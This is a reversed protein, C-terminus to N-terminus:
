PLRNIWYNPRRRGHAVALVLVDDDSVVEYVVVYPFRRVVTRRVERGPLSVPVQTSARPFREIAEFTRSLEDLFEDGLGARRNEYWRAADQGEQQAIDLVRLPVGTV